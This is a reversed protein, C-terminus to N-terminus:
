RVRYPYQKRYDDQTGVEGDEGASFVRIRPTGEPVELQIPHAFTDTQPFRDGTEARWQTYRVSLDGTTDTDYNQEFVWTMFGDAVQDFAAETLSGDVGRFASDEVEVNGVPASAGEGCGAGLMLLMGVLITYRTMKM